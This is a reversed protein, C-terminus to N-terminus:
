PNTPHQQWSWIHSSSSRIQVEMFSNIDALGLVFSALARAFLFEGTGGFASEDLELEIRWGRVTCLDGQVALTRTCSMIRGARIGELQRHATANSEHHMWRLLRHLLPAIADDGQAALSGPSLKSLALGMWLSEDRMLPAAPPTPGQQLRASGSLDGSTISLVADKRVFLPLDRNSCLAQLGISSISERHASYDPGSFRAYTDCGKYPSMRNRQPAIAEERHLSIYNVRDRYGPLAAHRAQYFPYLEFLMRGDEGYAAGSEVQLIEYNSVATADAVLYESQRWSPVVRSLRMPFANMVRVCDPLLVPQSLLMRLRPSPTHELLFRLSLLGSEPLLHLPLQLRLFALQAPQIFYEALEPLGGPAEPLLSHSLADPPLLIESDGVKVIIGACAHLLLSMLECTASEPLSVFFLIEGTGRGQCQFDSRLYGVLPKGARAVLASLESEEYSSSQPSLGSTMLTERSNFRCVTREPLSSPTEFRTGVPLEAGAEMGSVRVVARSVVPMVFEPSLQQLLTESFDALGDDMKLAVRATLFAMGELLREVYPDPCEQAGLQLRSAVKPFESAFRQSAHRLHDLENEYYKLFTDNM